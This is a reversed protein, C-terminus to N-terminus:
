PELGWAISVGFAVSSVPQKSSSDSQYERIVSSECHLALM